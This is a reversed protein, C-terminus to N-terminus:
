NQTKNYNEMYKQLRVYNQNTMNKGNMWRYVSAASSKVQKAVEEVTLDNEVMFLILEKGINEKSIM